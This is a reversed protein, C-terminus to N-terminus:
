NESLIFSSKKNAHSTELISISPNKYPFHTALM